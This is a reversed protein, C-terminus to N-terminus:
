ARGGRKDGGVPRFIAKLGHSQMIEDILDPANTEGLARTLEARRDADPEEMIERLASIIQIKTLYPKPNASM